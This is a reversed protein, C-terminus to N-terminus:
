VAGGARLHKEIRQLALSTLSTLVLYVLAVAIYVELSRYSVSIIKQGEHMLDAITLLSVLASNKILAIFENGLPPIMRVIAQPLIITRMAKGSSMGLSRAAEMQGKDISQIAGRVIESVYAGSYIGLGLVGCLFAPLLIDFQPLGFFLLFLQVLLPTGRIFTVYATCIGYRLRKSRDLRGLGVLLGLICGLVLSIATIEVTVIAGHLLDPWGELVPLFDLSM